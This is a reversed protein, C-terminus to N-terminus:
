SQIQVTKIKLTVHKGVTSMASEHHIISTMNNEM